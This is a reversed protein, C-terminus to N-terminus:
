KGWPIDTYGGFVYQGVKIITVTNRKGDCRSHFTSAAWGHTCARFCLQWQPHSGVAPTLFQRLQTQYFADGGIIASNMWSEIISCFYLLSNYKFKAFTCHAAHHFTSLSLSLSLSPFFSFCIKECNDVIGQLNNNKWKTKSYCLLQHGGDCCYAMWSYHSPSCWTEGVYLCIIGVNMLCPRLNILWQSKAFKFRVVKSANISDCNVCM